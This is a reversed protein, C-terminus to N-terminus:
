RQVNPTGTTDVDLEEHRVKEKVRVTEHDVEKRVTVNEKVYAQKSVDVDEEYVDMRAVEQDKFDHQTGAVPMGQADHREVVIREKEIPESVEATETEIHKGVRVEGVKERRRNTILREEYLKLSRQNDEESLGYLAPERNYTLNQQYAISDADVPATSEVPISSEVSSTAGVSADATYTQGMFQRKSRRQAMPRYQERVQEEYKDDVIQDSKFEPLNEVQQRSLGDVYIRNRQYDFHALGIPLLVNKGFIWPGTDVIAYRFQGADDVLLDKVSGVHNDGETYVDYSDINKLESNGMEERHNPYYDTLKHLAM